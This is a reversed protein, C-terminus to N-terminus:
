LALKSDINYSSDTSLQPMQVFSSNVLSNKMQKLLDRWSLDPSKNLAEIFSWTMAGQIKNDIFAEASTQSDMCGSIMIVNGNCESVKDNEICKDYNDGGLYCYKLDFMTGSHCSDILGILTTDKKMNKTLVSKIEDDLVGELDYSILMEDKNDTEDNNIDYTYSGHGSFYFFLIDGISSNVLLNTLEKLINEKTPKNTTLDTLVQMTTFGHVTLLNNIKNTDNICGSLEHPTNIYNIGILLGKKNSSSVVGTEPEYQNIKQIASNLKNILASVKKKYSINLANIIVHKNQIHSNKVRNINNTLEHKLRALNANFNEHLQKIRNEKYVSLENNM